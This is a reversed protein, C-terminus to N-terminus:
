KLHIWSEIARAVACALLQRYEPDEIRRAEEPNSLYGGEVLVAPCQQGRLVSLFRARRLGRDPRGTDQVLTRHICAALQLNQIDFSNNPFSQSPDDTYNRTITSPQGPPTLCYTEIGAENPNSGASNFHLSVFLSAKLQTATAVRDSLATSVDRTRTLLVKQGDAELLRQVRHAWDLTFHKEKSNSGFSTTGADDGGHGPDLVIPGPVGAPDPGNLLPIITKDLDVAHVFPVQNILQPAFGLRIEIGDWQAALSGTRLTFMGHANRLALWISNSGAASAGLRSFSAMGSSKCWSELAIWGTHSGGSATPRVAKTAVNTRTAKLDAGPSPVAAPAESAPPALSSQPPVVSALGPEAEEWDPVGSVNKHPPAACSGLLLALSFLFLQAPRFVV